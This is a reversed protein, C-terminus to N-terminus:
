LINAGTRNCTIVCTSRSAQANAESSANPAPWMEVTLGHVTRLHQQGEAFLPAMSSTCLGFFGPVILLRYRTPITRLDVKRQAETELYQNCSGWDGGDPNEGQLVTCFLNAFKLAESSVRAATAPSEPISQIVLVRGDSHFTAGTATRAEMSPQGPMIYSLKAVLGTEDLSRGVFEREDDVNLDIKHTLGNNRQDRDFGIDHTAAGVWLEQGEVKFPAKWLRLHHRQAVVQIPEAHALGYDQVRGFLTLESMPLTLYAQKNLTALLGSLVAGKRDRDVKV